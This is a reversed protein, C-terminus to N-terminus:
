KEGIIRGLRIEESFMENDYSVLHSIFNAIENPDIFTDYNENKNLHPTILEGMKSKIPGPSICFTRVNSERFEKHIAKSFGLLAHKSARYITTKEQGNYAGSSAINIIWGCKDSVMDKVFEKTLFIPARVNVNFCNDFDTVSCDQLFKIPLIGACNILIDIKQFSNRANKIIQNIENPKTLNAPHITISINSFKETLHKELSTLKTINQSTLFLNCGNKAFEIALATGLGGTAGTILCNKNKLILNEM